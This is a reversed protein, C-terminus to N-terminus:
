SAMLEYARTLVQTKLHDALRIALAAITLTPNAFGSAPFTSSGALYLGDADHLRCHLDVVGRSPTPAMRTAGMHHFGEHVHKAWEAASDNLWPAPEVTGLQLRAFESRVAATLVRVTERELESTRWAINARPVGLADRRASLTIRSEPDPLQEPYCQLVIRSSGLPSRGLLYRRFGTQAVGAGDHVLSGLAKLSLGAHRGARVNRVIGKLAAVGSNQPYEFVLVAVANLLGAERQLRESLAFKPWYRVRGRYLLGYLDHLRKPDRTQVEATFYSPHDLFFRGVLHNRNGLGNPHAKSTSALLLRVPEVGGMCLVFARARVEARAGRLSRVEAAVVRNGGEETRLRSVTAHMYVHVNRAAELMGRYLRGLHPQPSYVTFTSTLKAADFAPPAIGFGRWIREDYPENEVGFVAQARRYYPALVEQGFPWGSNPVWSRPEFDIPDLERCQGAWACTTGGLGRRRGETMGVHRLGSSEGENLAEHEPDVDFGGSELLVVETSTGAFERALSIGAAGAGIICLDAYMVTDQPLSDFDGIV